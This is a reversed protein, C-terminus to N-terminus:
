EFEIQIQVIESRSGIRIPPGWTGVGSSVYYHTDGIKKYGWDLEYIAHVIYNIPWLQGKHTHGSLQLDVGQKAAENLASPQHDMLIVPCRTDVERMIESLERRKKGALRNKSLDERGVIYISDAIKISQDRLIVIDHSTLYDCAREVGGIYEHNGTVGYVGFRSEIKTLAEGLNQKIVPAVDEDVIDGPLLVLDPRLSNITKVISDMRARGVITGLHIDSAAVINLRKLDGASKAIRLNLKRTCPIISNIHGAILLLGVIGLICASTIYKARDYHDTILSPFFPFFHNFFRALDLLVVALLLYLMAAIWFSGMWVLVDSLASARVNELLRGGFFSLAIIWFVVTYANRLSSGSPISQLGRMYIYTSVLGIVALFIAFFAIRAIASM